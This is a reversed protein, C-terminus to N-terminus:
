PGANRRAAQSFFVVQQSEPRDRRGHYREIDAFLPLDEPGEAYMRTVGFQPGGEWIDPIRMFDAPAYRYSTGALRARGPDAPCLFPSGTRVEGGVLMPPDIFLERALVDLPAMLGVRVDVVETALPLLDRNSQMYTSVAIGLSRLNSLCVAARASGRVSRLAPIFLAILVGVVLIVVLVEILTFARGRSVLAMASRGRSNM